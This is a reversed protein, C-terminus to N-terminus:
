LTVTLRISPPFRLIRLFGGVQRLDSVCHIVSQQISYLEGHVPDFLYLDHRCTGIHNWDCNHLFGLIVNSYHFTFAMHQHHQSIPSYSTSQQIRSTMHKENHIIMIITTNLPPIVNKYHRYYGKSYAWNNTSYFIKVGWRGKVTVM